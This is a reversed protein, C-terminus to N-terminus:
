RQRHDAIEGRRDEADRAARQLHYTQLRYKNRQMVCDVRPRPLKVIKHSLFFLFSVFVVIDYNVGLYPPRYGIAIAM